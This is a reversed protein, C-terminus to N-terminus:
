GVDRIRTEVKAKNEDTSYAPMQEYVGSLYELGDKGKREREFDRLFLQLQRNLAMRRRELDM